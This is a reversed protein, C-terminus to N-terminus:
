NLEAQVLNFGTSSISEIRGCGAVVEGPQLKDVAPVEGEFWLTVQNRLSEFPNDSDGVTIALSTENEAFATKFVTGSVRLWKGVYAATMKDAQAGTLDKRMRMIFEATLGSPLFERDGTSALEANRAQLAVVTPTVPELNPVTPRARSVDRELYTVDARLREIIGNYRWDMARWIVIAVVGVCLAFPMWVAPLTKIQRLLESLLDM